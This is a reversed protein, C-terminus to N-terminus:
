ESDASVVGTERNIKFSQNAPIGHRLMVEQLLNSKQKRTGDLAALLNLKREEQLGVEHLINKIQDDLINLARLDEQDIVREQTKQLRGARYEEIVRIEEPTLQTNVEATEEPKITKTRNSSV